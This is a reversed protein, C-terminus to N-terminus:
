SGHYREITTERSPLSAIDNMEIRKEKAEGGWNGGEVHQSQCPTSLEIYENVLYKKNYL